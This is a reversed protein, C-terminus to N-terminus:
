EGTVSGLCIIIGLCNSSDWLWFKNSDIKVTEMNSINSIEENGVKYRLAAEVKTMAPTPLASFIINVYDEQNDSQMRVLRRAHNISFQCNEQDYRFLFGGHSWLGCEVRKVFDQMGAGDTEEDKRCSFLLAVAVAAILLRSM